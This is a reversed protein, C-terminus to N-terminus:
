AHRRAPLRHRVPPPIEAVTESKGDLTVTLVRHGHMDSLWLQGDHWRPGEGFVLGDILVNRESM